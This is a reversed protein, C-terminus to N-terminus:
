WPGESLMVLFSPSATALFIRLSLFRVHEDERQVGRAAAQRSAGRAWGNRCGDLLMTIFSPKDQSQASESILLAALYICLSWPASMGGGGMRRM